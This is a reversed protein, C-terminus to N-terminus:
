KNCLNTFVETSHQFSSFPVTPHSEAYLLNHSSQLSRLGQVHSDYIECPRLFNKRYRVQKLIKCKHQNGSLSFDPHIYLHIFTCQFRRESNMGDALKLRQMTLQIVLRGTTWSTVNTCCISTMNQPRHYHNQLTYKEVTTKCQWIAHFTRNRKAQRTFNVKFHRWLNFRTPCVRGM